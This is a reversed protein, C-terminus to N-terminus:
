VKLCLGKLHHLMVFPMYLELACRMGFLEKSLLVYVGFFLPIQVILTPKIGRFTEQLDHFLSLDLERFRVVM